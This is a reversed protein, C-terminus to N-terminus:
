ILSTQEDYVIPSSSDQELKNMEVLLRKKRMRAKSDISGAEQIASDLVRQYEGVLPNGLVEKGIFGMIENLKVDSEALEQQLKRINTCRQLILEPALTEIEEGLAVTEAILTQYHGISEKLYEDLTKM